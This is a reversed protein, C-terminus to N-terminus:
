EPVYRPLERTLHLRFMEIVVETLETTSRAGERPLWHRGESETVAVTPLATVSKFNLVVTDALNEFPVPFLFPAFGIRQASEILSVDRPEHDHLRSTNGLGEEEFRCVPLLLSLPAIPFHDPIERDDGPPDTNPATVVHCANV